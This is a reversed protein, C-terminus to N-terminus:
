AGYTIRRGSTRFQVLTIGIVLMFLVISQAAAKGLDGKSIGQDYIRYIMVTTGGAPGGKTLFDITGFIDFFAYTINTIVLFFTIPSLMPIVIRRFRQLINAGDIAAAELLDSPVNQLGAIYFLISFGLSKWVSAIIITWPAISANQLWQVPTGGLFRITNNLIGSSENFILAFIIGAVTPSIAYPWILLTRYISGGRIPQYAMYAIVLSISLGIVVIAAAIGFTVSMTYGYDADILRTFNDVCVFATRSTGLRALLTSLRLNDFAPYYLFAALIVLSPALLLWPALWGRFTGTSSQGELMSAMSFGASIIRLLTRGIVLMVTTGLAILFIGIAVDLAVREPEFTCFNLPVMFLGGGILGAAAGIVLTLARNYGANRTWLTLILAGLVVPIGISLIVIVEPPLM